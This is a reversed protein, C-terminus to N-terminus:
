QAGRINETDGVIEVHLATEGAPCHNAFHYESQCKFCTLIKGDPGMRNLLKGTKDKKREVREPERKRKINEKKFKTDGIMFCGEEGPVPVAEVRMLGGTGKKAGPGGGLIEVIQTEVQEYLTDAKTFDLKSMVLSRNVGEVGSRRLLMFARIESPLVVSCVARLGTYAKDFRDVFAQIDEGSGRKCDEFEDWKAITKNLVKEGLEKELFKKVLELGTSGTMEAVTHKEMFKDVLGRKFKSDNTLSAIVLSAMKKVPLEASLEWLELKKKFMDYSSCEDLTPPQIVKYNVFTRGGDGHNESVPQHQSSQRNSLSLLNERERQLREAEALQERRQKELREEMAKLDDSSVETDEPMTTALGTVIM